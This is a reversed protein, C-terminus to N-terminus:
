AGPLQGSGTWGLAGFYESGLELRHRDQGLLTLSRLPDEFFLLRAQIPDALALTLFVLLGALLRPFGRFNNRRTFM